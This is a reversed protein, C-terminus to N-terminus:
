LNDECTRNRSCYPCGNGGNRSKVTAQWVHKPNESCQWWVKKQSGRTIDYPTIDKNLISHWEKALDPNITALCNDECARKGSCYPCGNGNTRESIRAQWEHSKRCKWWVKKDTGCTVDNPTLEGNLTSHWEKALGPNLTALCNDECVRQGSCYPCGNGKARQAVRTKWEHGKECKWWVEKESGCTVDNPSLEGNLTAHWEKALEPNLTALCNDECVRNGSCYPCCSKKRGAVRAKWEHGKSCRWWIEKGSCVTVDYPTLDGNLTPHWEKALDPNLTALCNDECARKGSCYPCGNGNTARSTRENPSAKWEHGKECKWWVKKISGMSVNKPNLSGNKTYDWQRAIKSHTYYLSKKTEQFELMDYIKSEDMDVRISGIKYANDLITQSKYNNVIFDIIKEIVNNLSRKDSIEKRVFSISDFPKIQPLGEERIRILKIGLKRLIENKKEDRVIALNSSHYYVGDYEIGLSLKPIFVDIEIDRKMYKFKYRNIIDGFGKSLYYIIAQEAFSTKRWASCEPCGSGKTRQAVRTKWEHGKECKWWVTKGCSVTVKYATLNGNLTPHWEKALEPNLTALCNDVCTKKGGCYPCGSKKRSAVSSRWEHGNNCIWWVIKGSGVTIDYPTFGKNKTPHWEKALDPNLTALCNDECARKGSCYPCGNGNTRESIRAQWEHGKRCKWWVKKQSGCTVDNPTLGGNLKPHWDKSLEPNLTALCNDECARKGSCYPCGCGNNRHNVREKWEHGKECIWWVIRATGKTVDKSTLDGNKTPHWEKALNSNTTELCNELCVKQNSCYPCGVGKNRNIVIANWIHSPNNKCQWWVMKESGCTVDKPTLQGNLTSDWEKALEPNLTALCNDECVRQGSCYPCGCGSNRHKIRGQWEHGKKCKWWIKKPSGCTVDNPTLDGNLTPHWETALEPNLTALCNGECVRQGSCYPCGDGRKTRKNVVSQWVHKSNKSCQWWVKKGSSETVDDFALDVNLEYHWEKALEPYLNSLSKHLKL